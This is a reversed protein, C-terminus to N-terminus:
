PLRVAEGFFNPLLQVALERMSNRDRGLVRSLEAGVLADAFACLALFLLASPVHHPRSLHDQRLRADVARALAHVAERVRELYREKNSLVIWAALLAAGERDFADFVIDALVRAREEGPGFTTIARTLARALDDVMASMLAAQLEEASGFHHLITSHSRDLEAAVRNLTVGAPGHALLQKRAAILARRRAEDASLRRARSKRPAGSANM